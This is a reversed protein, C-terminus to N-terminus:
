RADHRAEKLIVDGWHLFEVAHADALRWARGIIERREARTPDEWIRQRGRDTKRVQWIVYAIEDSVERSDAWRRIEEPFTM